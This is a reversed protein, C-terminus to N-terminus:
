SRRPIATAYPPGAVNAFSKEQSALGSVQLVCSRLVAVTGAGASVEVDRTQKRVARAAAVHCVGTRKPPGSSPERSERSIRRRRTHERHGHRHGHGRTRPEIRLARRGRSTGTDGAAARQPDDARVFRAFPASGASRTSREPGPPNRPVPQRSPHSPAVPASPGCPRAPRSPRSAAVGGAGVGVTIAAHLDLPRSRPRRVQGGVHRQVSRRELATEIHRGVAGASPRRSLILPQRWGRSGNCKINGAEECQTRRLANLRSVGM